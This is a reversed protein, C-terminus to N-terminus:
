RWLAIPSGCCPWSPHIPRPRLAWSGSCSNTASCSRRRPAKLALSRRRSGPTKLNLCAGCGCGYNSFTSDIPNLRLKDYADRLSRGYRELDFDPVVGAVQKTAEQIGALQKASFVEKLAQSEGLLGEVRNLYVRGIKQWQVDPPLSPLGLDIWARELIQGDLGQCGPEFAKALWRQVEAERLFRNLAAVYPVLEAQKLGCGELEQQLQYLFLATAKGIALSLEDKHRQRLGEKLTDKFWESILRESTGKTVDGLFEAVPKLVAGFAFGALQQSGWLIIADM